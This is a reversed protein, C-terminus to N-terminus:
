EVRSRSFFDFTEECARVEEAPLAAIRVGLLDGDRSALFYNDGDIICEVGHGDHGLDIDIFSNRFLYGRGFPDEYIRVQLAILPAGCRQISPLVFPVSRRLHMIVANM